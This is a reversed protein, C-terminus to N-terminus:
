LQRLEDPTAGVTNRRAPAAGPGHRGGHEAAGSPTQASSCSCDFDFSTGGAFRAGQSGNGRSYGGDSEDGETITEGLLGGLSSVGGRASLRAQQEFM